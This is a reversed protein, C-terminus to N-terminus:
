RSRGPAALQGAAGTRRGHRRHRHRCLLRRGLRSSDGFGRLRAGRVMLDLWDGLAAAGAGALSILAVLAAFVAGAVGPRRGRGIFLSVLAVIGLLPAVWDWGASHTM